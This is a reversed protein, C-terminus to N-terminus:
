TQRWDDRLKRVFAESSMGATADPARGRLDEWDPLEDLRARLREIEDSAANLLDQTAIGTPLGGLVARLRKSAERV